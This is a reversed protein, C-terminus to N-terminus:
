GLGISFGPYDVSYIEANSEDQLDWWAGIQDLRKELLDDLDGESERVRFMGELLEEFLRVELLVAAEHPNPDTVENRNFVAHGGHYSWGADGLLDVIVEAARRGLEPLDNPIALASDVKVIWRSDVSQSLDWLRDQIARYRAYEKRSLHRGGCNNKHLPLLDASLRMMEAKRTARRKVLWEAYIKRTEVDEPNDALVGLWRLECGSSSKMSM